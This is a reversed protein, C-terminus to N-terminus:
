TQSDVVHSWKLFFIVGGEISIGGNPSTIDKIAIMRKSRQRSGDHYDVDNSLIRRKIIYTTQYYVDNSLICQKIIYITQYYVDNSLICRKIIYMTQYYVDNSIMQFCQHM